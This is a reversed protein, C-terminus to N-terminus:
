MSMYDIIDENSTLVLDLINTPQDVVQSLFNEHIIETFRVYLDSRNLPTNNIWDFESLNFDGVLVIEPTSLSQLALQLEELPKLEDNPPRYFVGLTFM